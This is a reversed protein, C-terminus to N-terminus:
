KRYVPNKETELIKAEERLVLHNQEFSQQALRPTELHRVEL